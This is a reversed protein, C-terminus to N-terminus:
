RAPEGVPAVAGRAAPLEITFVTGAGAGASRASIRGGHAEVIAKAISLGIGSGGRGRGRAADVRYFREFLHPLHEAAIGEGTDTVTIISGGQGKDVRVEIRGGRPTHRLANDLLNGLVQGLRQPDVWLPGADADIEPRLTVGAESARDTMAALAGGVLAGADVRQRAITRGEEAQALASVDESLRVLRAAQDRMVSMSDLDLEKVGDEVAELYAQLVSVPTRIEHALDGLLQRRTAEVAGLRAAMANFASALSDFDTGLDPPSVRAEFNGEAIRTAAGSVESLSRQLRRSLYWTVVFATLAAAAVAVAVSIATAYTYAQEAHFQEHSDAQIGARRLHERFLPPGVLMAVVATTAVGALLVTVQGLLLRTGLGPRRSM